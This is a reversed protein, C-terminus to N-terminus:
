RGEYRFANGFDGLADDPSDFAAAPDLGMANYQESLRNAVSIDDGPVTYEAVPVNHTLSQM